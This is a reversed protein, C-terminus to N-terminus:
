AFLEGIIPQADAPGTVDLLLGDGGDDRLDFSLFACCEAEAAIVARLDSETEGAAAFRLRAGGDIAERSRLARRAIGETM